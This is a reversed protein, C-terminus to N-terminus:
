GKSCLPPFSKFSAVEEFETTLEDARKRFVIFGVNDKEQNTIWQPSTVALMVTM